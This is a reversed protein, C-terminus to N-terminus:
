EKQIYPFTDTAPVSSRNVNDSRRPVRHTGPGYFPQGAPVRDPGNIFLMMHTDVIDDNLTRGGCSGHRDGAEDEPRGQFHAMEIEFWTPDEVSCPKGPDVLLVDLMLLDHLPHPAPWDLGQDFRDFRALGEAMAHEYYHLHGESLNFADEENWSKRVDEHPLEEGFDSSLILHIWPRGMRDFRQGEHLTEGVVALLGDDEGVLTAADLELVLTLVRTKILRRDFFDSGEPEVTEGERPHQRASLANDVFFPDRTLAAYLAVGGEAHSQEFSTTISGEGGPGSWACTIRDDPAKRGPAVTCSIEAEAESVSVATDPGVGDIDAARVRWRYTMDDRFRSRKGAFSHATLVLAVRGESPTWAYLDAIQAFRRDSLKYGEIHDAALLPPAPLLTLLAVLTRRM